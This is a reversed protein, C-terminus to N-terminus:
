KAKRWAYALLTVLGTILLGLTTPEPVTANVAVTDFGVWGSSGSNILMIGIAKGVYAQGAQATFSFDHSQWNGATTLTLSQSAGAIETLTGANDYALAVRTAGGAGENASLAAWYSVDYVEGAGITHSTTQNISFGGSPGVYASPSAPSGDTTTTGSQGAPFSWNAQSPWGTGDDFGGNVIIDAQVTGSLHFLVVAVFGIVKKM